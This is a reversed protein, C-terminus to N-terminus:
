DDHFGFPEELLESFLSPDQWSLSELAVADLRISYGLNPSAIEIREGRPTHIKQVRVEAFENAVTLTDGRRINEDEDEDNTTHDSGSM